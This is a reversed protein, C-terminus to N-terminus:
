EMEGAEYASSWSILWDFLNLFISPVEKEKEIHCQVGMLWRYEPSELAEIIGDQPHYASALLGPARQAEKAGQHHYSNIRFIAGVGIIAGLKSGPSVYVPHKLPEENTDDPLKRHGPLDQILTGGFAVNILQLGRCIGLVPMDRELAARLLAMEMEDREAYTEVGVGDAIEQGYYQPHVDYGGCLLLGSVGDLAAELSTYTSPTLVRTQGGRSEVSAVYPEAENPGSATVAILAM